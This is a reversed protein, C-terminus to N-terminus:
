RSARRHLHAVDQTSGYLSEPARRGHEDPEYYGVLVETITM